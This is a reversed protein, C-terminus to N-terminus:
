KQWPVEFVRVAASFGKLKIREPAELCAAALSPGDRRLHEFTTESIFIRGRGSARLRSALNVERGFVTYTLSEGQASGSGMLGATALGTNIGSGLLLTPLPPLLALGNARHVENEAERRSNEETRQRNLTCIARQAEIAAHVGALAHQPNPTPAGWFAMVCDGIFKDLTGDQKRIINAVLGLYLNVTNLTERAQQEFCAEAQAGTLGHQKVFEAM